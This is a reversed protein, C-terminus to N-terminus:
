IKRTPWCSDHFPWMLALLNWLRWSITVYAGDFWHSHTRWHISTTFNTSDYNTKSAFRDRRGLSSGTCHCWPWCNKCSCHQDTFPRLSPIIKKLTKSKELWILLWILKNEYSKKEFNWRNWEERRRLREDKWHRGRWPTTNLAAVKRSLLLWM